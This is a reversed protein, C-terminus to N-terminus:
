NLDNFYNEKENYFDNLVNELDINKDEIKNMHYLTNPFDKNYIEVKDTKELLKEKTTYFGYYFCNPLISKIDYFEINKIDKEFDIIKNKYENYFVNSIIDKLNINFKYYLNIKDVFSIEDLYKDSFKFKKNLVFNLFQECNTEKNKISDIIYSNELKNLNKPDSYQIFPKSNIEKQNKIKSSKIELILFEFENKLEKIEKIKNIHYFNINKFDNLIKEIKDLIADDKYFIVDFLDPYLQNDKRIDDYYVYKINYNNKKLDYMVVEESLYGVYCDLLNEFNNRLNTLNKQEINENLVKHKLIDLKTKLKELGILDFLENKEIEKM